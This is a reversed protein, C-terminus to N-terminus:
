NGPYFVLGENRENGAIQLMHWKLGSVVTAVSLGTRHLDGPQVAQLQAISTALYLAAAFPLIERLRTLDNM